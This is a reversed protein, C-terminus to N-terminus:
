DTASSGTREVYRGLLAMVAAYSEKATAQIEEGRRRYGALQESGLRLREEVRQKREEAQRQNQAAQKRGLRESEFRATRDIDAAVAALATTYPEGYKVVLKGVGPLELQLVDPLYSARALLDDALTNLQGALAVAAM